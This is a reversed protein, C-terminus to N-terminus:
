KALFVYTTLTYWKITTAAVGTVQIIANNGSVTLNADCTSISLDIPAEEEDVLKDPVGILTAAAGDTRVSGFISYGVGEDDTSDYGVIEISFRYIGASGSLAFSALTTPTANSTTVSGTIRNTLTVTGTTGVVGASLGVVNNTSTQAANLTTIGGGGGGGGSGISGAQSM